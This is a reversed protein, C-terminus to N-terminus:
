VEILEFSPVTKANKRFEVEEPVENGTPVPILLVKEDHEQSFFPETSSIFDRVYDDSGIKDSPYTVIIKELLDNKVGLKQLREQWFDLYEEPILLRMNDTISVQSGLELQTQEPYLHLEENKESYRAFYFQGKGVISGLKGVLIASGHDFVTRNYTITVEVDDTTYQAEKKVVGGYGAETGNIAFAIKPLLGHWRRGARSNTHAKGEDHSQRLGSRLYGSQLIMAMQSDPSAHTVLEHNVRWVHRLYEKRKLKWRESINKLHSVRRQQEYGDYFKQYFQVGIEALSTIAALNNATPISQTFSSLVRGSQNDDEVMSDLSKVVQALYLGSYKILPDLGNYVIRELLSEFSKVFAIAEKKTCSLRQRFFALERLGMVSELLALAEQLLSSETEVRQQYTLSNLSIFKSDIEKVKTILKPIKGKHQAILSKQQENLFIKDSFSRSQRCRQDLDDKQSRISDINMLLWDLQKTLTKIKSELSILEVNCTQNELAHDIREIEQSSLQEIKGFNEGIMERGQLLRHVLDLREERGLGSDNVIEVIKQPSLQIIREAMQAFEAITTIDSHPDIVDVGISKHLKKVLSNVSRFLNPEYSTLSSPAFVFGDNTRLLNKLPEFNGLWLHALISERTDEQAFVEVKQQDNIRNDPYTGAIREVQLVPGDGQEKLRVRPTSVGLKQYSQFIIFKKRIQEPTSSSYLLNPKIELCNQFIKEETKQVEKKVGSNERKEAM